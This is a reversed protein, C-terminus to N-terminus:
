KMYTKQLLNTLTPANLRKISIYYQKLYFNNARAVGAGKMHHM